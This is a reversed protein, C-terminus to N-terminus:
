DDCMVYFSQFLCVSLHQLVKTYREMRQYSLDYVRGRIHPIVHSLFRWMPSEARVKHKKGGSMLSTKWGLDLSKLHQVFLEAGTKALTSSQQSM